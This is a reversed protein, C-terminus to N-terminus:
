PRPTPLPTPPPVGVPMVPPAGPPLGSQPRTQGPQLPLQVPAGPRAPATVTADVPEPEPLDGVEKSSLPRDVPVRRFRGEDAFAQDSNM